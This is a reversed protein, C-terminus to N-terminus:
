EGRKLIARARAIQREALAVQGDLTEIDKTSIDLALGLMKRALTIDERVQLQEAISLERPADATKDNDVM